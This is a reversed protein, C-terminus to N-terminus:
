ITTPISSRRYLSTIEEISLIYDERGRFHYEQLPSHVALAPILLCRTKNLTKLVEFVRQKFPFLAIRSSVLGAPM